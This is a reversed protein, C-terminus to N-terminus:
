TEDPNKTDCHHCPNHITEYGCAICEYAFQDNYEDEEDDDLILGYKQVYEKSTQDDMLLAILNLNIKM